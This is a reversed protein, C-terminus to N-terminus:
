ELYRSVIESYIFINFSGAYPTRFVPLHTIAFNVPIVQENEADILFFSFSTRRTLINSSDPTM